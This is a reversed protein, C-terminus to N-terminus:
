IESFNRALERSFRFLPRPRVDEFIANPLRRIQIIRGRRRRANRTKRRPYRPLFERATYAATNECKDRRFITFASITDTGPTALRLVIRRGCHIAM